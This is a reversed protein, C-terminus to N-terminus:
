TTPEKKPLHLSAGWYEEWEKIYCITEKRTVRDILLRGDLHDIEHLFVRAPFGELKYEVPKGKRNWGEVVCNKSRPVVGRLDFSLDGEWGEETSKSKSAVKPNIVITLPFEGRDPYRSNEPDVNVVIVRKNVGVQPAAIGAGNAAICTDALDDLFQQFAPAKLENQTVNESKHRLAPHGLRVITLPPM